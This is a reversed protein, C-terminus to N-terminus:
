FEYGVCFHFASNTAKEGSSTQEKPLINQIGQSYNINLLWGKKFQYGTLFNVGFDSTKFDDTIKNGFALKRKEVKEVNSSSSIDVTFKKVSGGLAYGLYPGSGLLVKGNGLPLKLVANVPVDVYFLRYSSGILTVTAPTSTQDVSDFGRDTYSLGTQLSFKETIPKNIFASFYGLGNPSIDSFRSDNFTIISTGIGLKLGLSIKQNLSENVNIQALASISFFSIICILITNKM